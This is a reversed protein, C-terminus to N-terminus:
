SPGRSSIWSTPSHVSIQTMELASSSFAKKGSTFSVTSALQQAPKKTTQIDEPTVTELVALEREPDGGVVGLTAAVDMGKMGGSNPVIVGKVNKIINGSCKVVCRVPEEGLLKRAEAGAYAIAIPETCGLAVLLEEQLIKLHNDYMAQEM